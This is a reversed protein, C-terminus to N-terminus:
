MLSQNTCPMMTATMCQQHQFGGAPWSVRRVGRSRVCRSSSSRWCRWLAWFSGPNTSRSPKYSRGVSVLLPLAEIDLNTVMSNPVYRRNPYKFGLFDEEAIGCLGLVWSKLNRTGFVRRSYMGLAVGSSRRSM